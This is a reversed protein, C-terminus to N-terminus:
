EYAEHSILPRYIALEKYLFDILSDVLYHCDILVVNGYAEMFKGDSKEYTGKITYKLSYGSGSKADLGLM